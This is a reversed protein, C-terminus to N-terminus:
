KKQKLRLKLSELLNLYQDEKEIGFYDVWQFSRMGRPVECEELRLPILFIMGDPKELALDYAYRIERQVFGEKNVSHSSLCIIVIDSAEVAEEIVVRWNQGPLIKMKDLWPDIWDYLKLAYYLERVAPKDNSSHCLFVRLPRSILPAITKSSHKEGAPSITKETTPTPMQQAVSRQVEPLVPHLVTDLPVSLFRTHLREMAETFYNEHVNMGNYRSLNKLKGTLKESVTATGFSFGDFFLPVINRKEDLAVEIERRIWDGPESCQDLTTPTLILVFHARAKINNTIIKELDEGPINTYDFFVDFGQHALSQYVALAWSIDKRRYSIFVTKEIRSM